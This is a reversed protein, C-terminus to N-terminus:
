SPNLIIPAPDHGKALARCAESLMEAVGAKKVDKECEVAYKKALGDVALGPNDACAAASLEIASKELYRLWKRDKRNVGRGLWESAAQQLEKAYRIVQVARDLFECGPEHDERQPQGTALTDYLMGGCWGCRSSRFAGPPGGPLRPPPAEAM